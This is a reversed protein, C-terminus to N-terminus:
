GKSLYVTHVKHKISEFYDPKLPKGFSRFILSYM